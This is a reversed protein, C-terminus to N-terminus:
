YKFHVGMMLRRGYDVVDLVQNGYRGHTSYTADTLNFAEAYVNIQETVDYSTSFDMNWSGNVFTPEAGFTSGNQLQGFQKLFADQWNIALRAQFGNKDYFAVFNASDALGTVAFHGAGFPNPDYPSDTGVLTGNAQFGFGTDDFVHQLSLEIGYVNASPGNVPQTLTFPIDTGGPGAGVFTHQTSGTVIFNSVSKFFTDASLYSNPQYYWQASLDVSDSLYPLLDPNGSSATVDGV